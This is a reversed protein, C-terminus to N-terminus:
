NTSDEAAFQADGLTYAQGPSLWSVDALDYAVMPSAASGLTVDSGVGSPDSLTVNKGAMAKYWSWRWLNMFALEAGAADRIARNEGALTAKLETLDDSFIQFNAGSVTQDGHSFRTPTSYAM